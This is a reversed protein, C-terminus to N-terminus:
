KQFIDILLARLSKLYFLLNKAIGLKMERSQNRRDVRNQDRLSELRNKSSVGDLYFKSSISELTTVSQNKLVKVFFDYDAAFKFQLDFGNLEKFVSSKILFSCQKILKSNIRPFVNRVGLFWGIMKGKPNRYNTTYGSIVADFDNPGALVTKCNLFYDNSILEDGANLFLIFDEIQDQLLIINM